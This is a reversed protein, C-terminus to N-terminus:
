RASLPDELSCSRQSMTFRSNVPHVDEGPLSLLSRGVSRLMEESRSQSLFIEDCPNDDIVLITVKTAVYLSKSAVLFMRAARYNTYAKLPNKSKPRQELEAKQLMLRIYM